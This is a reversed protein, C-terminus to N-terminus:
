QSQDDQARQAQQEADSADPLLEVEAAARPTCYPQGARAQQQQEEHRESEHRVETLFYRTTAAANRGGPVMLM